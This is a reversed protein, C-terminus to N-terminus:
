IEFLEGEKEFYDIKTKNSICCLEQESLNIENCPNEYLSTLSIVASGRGGVERWGGDRNYQPELGFGAGSINHATSAIDVGMYYPRQPAEMAREWGRFISMVGSDTNYSLSGVETDVIGIGRGSVGLSMGEQVMEAIVESRESEFQEESM